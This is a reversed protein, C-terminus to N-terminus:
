HYFPIRRIKCDDDCVILNGKVEIMSLGHYCNVQNEEFTRAEMTEGEESFVRM